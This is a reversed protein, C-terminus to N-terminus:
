QGAAREVTLAICFPGANTDTSTFDLTTVKKDPHPNEWFGLYLRLSNNMWKSVRNSGTWVVEGEKVPKGRDSNWWDRVHHGFVIPLAASSGDEYHLTYQGVLDGDHVLRPPGAFQASHLAYLRLMKRQVRIGEVKKPLKPINKGGLIVLQGGVHFRIGGLTLEGRPLEALGNGEFVGPGSLDDCSCNAVPQIDLSALREAPPVVWPRDEPRFEKAMTELWEVNARLYEGRMGGGDKARKAFLEGLRRSAEAARRYQGADQLTQCALEAFELAAPTRGAAIAETVYEEVQALTTRQEAALAGPLARIRDRLLAEKAARYVPSNLDKELALIRQAARRIAAAARHRYEFDDQLTRPQYREVRQLFAGLDRVNDAPMKDFDAPSERWVAEWARGLLSVGSPQSQRATSLSKTGQRDTTSATAVTDAPAAPAKTAGPVPATPSAFSHDGPLPEKRQANVTGRSGDFGPRYARRVHRPLLSDDRRGM